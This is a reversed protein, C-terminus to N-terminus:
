LWRLRFAVADEEENFAVGWFSGMEVIFEWKGNCENLWEFVMNIPKQPPKSNDDWVTLHEISFPVEFM